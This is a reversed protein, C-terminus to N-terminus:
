EEQERNPNSEIAGPQVDTPEWPRNRKADLDLLELDPAQQERTIRDFEPKPVSEIVDPTVASVSAAWRTEERARGDRYISEAERRDKREVTKVHERFEPTGQDQAWATGIWEGSPWFIELKRTDHPLGRVEVTHGIAQGAEPCLYWRRGVMIGRPEYKKPKYDKLLFRRLQSADPVRVPKTGRNWKATPTMGLERHELEFNYRRVWDLVKQVFVVYGLPEVNKPIDLRGDKLKPGETYYPMTAFLMTRMSGFVREVKGKLNPTYAETHEIQIQLGVCASSIADAMFDLGRDLRILDPICNVPSINPWYQFASGLGGVINEGPAEELASDVESAFDAPGSHPQKGFSVRMSELIVSQNPQISVAVGAIARSWSDIFLTIWPRVIKRSNPTRIWVEVKKHDGEFCYGRGVETRVLRHGVQRGKRPGSKAYAWEKASMDRQCAKEFTRLSCTVEGAEKLNEYARRRHGGCAMLEVKHNRTMEYRYRGPRPPEGARIWRYLTETSRNLRREASRRVQWSLKGHVRITEILDQVVANAEEWEDFTM